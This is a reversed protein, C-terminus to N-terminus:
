APPPPVASPPSGWSARAGHAGGGRAAVFRAISGISRFSDLDLEEMEITVGFAQEVRALLEVLALSDLLGTAILDTDDAPVVMALDRAFMGRLRETIGDRPAADGPIADAPLSSGSVRDISREM